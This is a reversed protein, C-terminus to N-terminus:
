SHENFGGKVIRNQSFAFALIGLVIILTCVAYQPWFTLLLRIQTMDPHRFELSMAYVASAVASIAGVWSGIRKIPEM